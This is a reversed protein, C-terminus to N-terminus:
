KRRLPAWEGTYPDVFDWLKFIAKFTEKYEGNRTQQDLKYSINTLRGDQRRDILRNEIMFQIIRKHAEEDDFECYFCTPGEDLDLLHKCSYVIGQEIAKQCVRDALFADNLYLMWKGTKNRYHEPIEDAQYRDWRGFPFNKM